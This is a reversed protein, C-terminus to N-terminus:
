LCNTEDQLVEQVPVEQVPVEQVPAEQVPVEQRCQPQTQQSKRPPMGLDKNRNFFLFFPETVGFFISLVLFLVNNSPDLSTYVDYLAMYRFVTSVVSICVMPLGIGVAAIIPGTILNLIMHSSSDSLLKVITQVVVFIVLGSLVLGLVLVTLNLILLIKRKSKIQGKVVYRYQDSLSGLIWVNLVPIWSLWAKRIGRRSAMTYLALSSLVYCAISFLGSPIGSVLAPVMTVIMDEVLSPDSYINM